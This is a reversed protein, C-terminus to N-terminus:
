PANEILRGVGRYLGFATGILSQVATQGCSDSVEFCYPSDGMPEAPDCPLDQVLTDPVLFLSMAGVGLSDSLTGASKDAREAMKAVLDLQGWRATSSGGSM